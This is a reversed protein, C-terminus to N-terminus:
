VCLLLHKRHYTSLCRRSGGYRQGREKWREGVRKVTNTQDITRCSFKRDIHIQVIQLPEVGRRCCHNLPCASRFWRIFSPLDLRLTPSRQQRPATSRVTEVAMICNVLYLLRMLMSLPSSRAALVIVPFEQPPFHTRDYPYRVRWVSRGDPLAVPSGKVTFQPKIRM